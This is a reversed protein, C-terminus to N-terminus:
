SRLLHFSLSSFDVKNAFIEYAPQKPKDAAIEACNVRLILTATWLQQFNM